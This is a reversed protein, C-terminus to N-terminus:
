YLRALLLNELQKTKELIKGVIVFKMPGERSAIIAQDVAEEGVVLRQRM